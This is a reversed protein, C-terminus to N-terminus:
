ELGTKKKRKRDQGTIDSETKKLEKKNRTDQRTRVLRELEM